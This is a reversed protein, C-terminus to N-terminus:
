REWGWKESVWYPLFWLKNWNRIHSFPTAKSDIALQPIHGYSRLQLFQLQVDNSYLVRICTIACLHSKDENRYLIVLMRNTNWVVITVCESSNTWVATGVAPAAPSAPTSPQPPECKESMVTLV